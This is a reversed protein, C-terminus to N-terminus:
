WQGDNRLPIYTGLRKDRARVLESMILGGRSSKLEEALVVDLTTDVPLNLKIARAARLADWVKAASDDPSLGFLEALYPVQAQRHEEVLAQVREYNGRVAEAVITDRAKYSLPVAAGAFIELSGFRSDLPTMM